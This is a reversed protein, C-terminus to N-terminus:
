GKTFGLVIFSMEQEQANDSDDLSSTLADKPFVAFIDTNIIQPTQAKTQKYYMINIQIAHQKMILPHIAKFNKLKAIKDNLFKKVKLSDNEVFTITIETPPILGYPISLPIKPGYTTEYIEPKNTTYTVSKVPAFDNNGVLNLGDIKVYWLNSSRLTYQTTQALTPIAM